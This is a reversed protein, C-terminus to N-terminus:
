PATTGEFRGSVLAEGRSAHFTLWVSRAGAPLDITHAFTGGDPITADVILTGANWIRITADGEPSRVWGRLEFRNTTAPGVFVAHGRFARAVVGGPAAQQDGFGRSYPMGFRASRAAVSLEGRAAALDIGAAVLSAALVAGFAWERTSAVGERAPASAFAQPRRERWTEQLVVLLALMVAITPDQVPLGFMLTAGLGALVALLVMSGGRAMAGLTLITLWLVPLLGMVGREALVQRWLNQANDPPMAQGAAERVYAPSWLTFTGIGVGTVPRDRIAQAAALGYGDRKWLLEYADAAVSTKPLFNFLRGLPSGPPALPALLVLSIAGAALAAGAVAAAWPLGIRRRLWELVLGAIGAATILLMSRAGSFWAASWLVIALPLARPDPPSSSQGPSPRSDSASSTDPPPSSPPAHKRLLIFTLPAFTAVLVGLPNADGMMGVSRGLTSWPPGSLWSPDVFRQYVAAIASIAAGALLATLLSSNKGSLGTTAGSWGKAGGAASTRGGTGLLWDMWLALSMQLLATPVVLAITNRPGDVAFDLERLWVIPWSVAVSAAWWALPLRWPPPAQWARGASVGVVLGSFAALWVPVAALQPGLALRLVGYHIGGLALVSWATPLPAVRASVAALVFAGGALAASAPSQGLLGWCGAAVSLLMSAIVMGRAISGARIM